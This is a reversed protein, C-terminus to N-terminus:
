KIGVMGEIVREESADKREIEQTIEGEHMTLIRDSMGLIEPLESSIMTIGVGKEVLENMIKYIETKAGVDIGITPEDLILIECDKAIWRALIAKQRNGGSLTTINVEPSPAKIRLLKIVKKVIENEKKKNIFGFKSLDDLFALSINEKLNTTPVIGEMERDEPVYGIKHSIADRPSRIRIRKGKLWIEGGKTKIDGFLGKATESRGAGILGAVGLIEGEQLSFSINKFKDGLLNSVRLIEKPASVRERKPFVDKLERGVMLRVIEQINTKSVDVTTIKKGDRLVTARDAIEKIEEIRHSIYIISTGSKKLEKLISFFRKIEKQALAATPEDLVLIRPNYSLAKAISVMKQQAVSLEECLITPDVALGVKKLLSKTEALMRSWDKLFVRRSFDRGLFVNEAINMYPELELEQPVVSIGIEYANQPGAFEREKGEIIIKGKDKKYVGALIKVLTSKGAGNEGILAHLESKRLDFNVKNLAVVGPFFKSIGQMEVLDM